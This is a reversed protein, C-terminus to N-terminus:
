HVLKPMAPILSGPEFHPPHMPWVALCHMHPFVLKQTWTSCRSVQRTRPLHWHTSLTMRTGKWPAPLRPWPAHWNLFWPAWPVSAPPCWACSLRHLTLRPSALMMPPEHQGAPHKSARCTPPHVRPAHAHVSVCCPLSFLVCPHKGSNPCPTCRMCGPKAGFHRGPLCKLPAASGACSGRRAPLPSISPPLFCLLCRM